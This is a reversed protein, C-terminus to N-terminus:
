KQHQKRLRYKVFEIPLMAFIFLTVVQALYGRSIVVYMMGNIIAISVIALYNDKHALFRLWWYKVLAGLLFSFVIIGTWGFAIYFEGFNLYMQGIGHKGYLITNLSLMYEGAPKGPWFARPIPMAITNIIFDFHSFSKLTEYKEILYGTAMFVTSENFSKDVLDESNYQSVKSTDIGKGYSRAVELAGMLILFPIVISAALRINLKKKTYIHYVSLCSLLLVVLRWRFADSIFISITFLSFVIFYIRKNKNLFPRITLLVATIFFVVSQMLYSAFGGAYNVTAGDSNLFNLKTFFSPGLFIMSLVVTIIFVLKANKLLLNDDNIQFIHKSKAIKKNKFAIYICLYSITAAKWATAIYPRHEVARILTHDNILAFYPGVICYYIYTLSIFTMPSWLDEPNKSKYAKILYHAILGILSFSWFIESNSLHM